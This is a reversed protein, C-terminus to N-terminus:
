PSRSARACVVHRRDGLRSVITGAVVLGSPSLPDALGAGGAREGRDHIRHAFAIGSPRPHFRRRAADRLGHVHGAVLQANGEDYVANEMLAAGIGQAIAGVLQGSALTHDLVVGADDVATYDVITTAGTDPDIEVEAVHCGNPFTQPTDVTAKTDLADGQQKM